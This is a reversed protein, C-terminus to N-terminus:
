EDEGHEAHDDHEAHEGGGDSADHDGHDGHGAHEDEVGGYEEQAGAFDKVTATVPHETGDDLVLVLEVEDGPLLPEALDMLMIHDGGPELLLEEGPPIPFGGEKEEMSMGGSGDTSTQHLEVVESAPTTVSVLVVETEGTNTITAFASTMGEEAAKVWPDVVTLPSTGSADAGAAGSDGAPDGGGDSASDPSDGESGAASCAALPLLALGLLATRRRPRALRSRAPATDATPTAALAPLTHKSM